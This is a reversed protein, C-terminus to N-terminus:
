SRPAAACQPLGRIFTGIKALTDRGNPERLVSWYAAGGRWDRGDLRSIVGDRRVLGQMVAVTCRLNLDPEHLRREDRPPMPCGVYRNSSEQSLQLLGRSVVHRGDATTMRRRCAANTCHAYEDFSVGPDFNSEFRAMASILGTWFAARGERDLGSYGPCFRQVDTPVSTLLYDGYRDLHGRLMGTWQAGQAVHDWDAKFSPAAPQDTALGHVIASTSLSGAIAIGFLGTKRASM